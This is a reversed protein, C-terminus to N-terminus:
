RGSDPAVYRAILVRCAPPRPAANLATSRSRTNPVTDKISNAIAPSANTCPLSVNGRSQQSRNRRQQDDPQQHQPECEQQRPCRRAQQPTRHEDAARRSTPWELFQETSKGGEAPPMVYREGRQRPRENQLADDDSVVVDRSKRQPDVHREARVHEDHRQRGYDSANGIEILPM